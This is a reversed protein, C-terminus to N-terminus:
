RSATAMDQQKIVATPAPVHVAEDASRLAEQWGGWKIAALSSIGSRFQRFEDIEELFSLLPPPTGRCLGPQRADGYVRVFAWDHQRPSRRMAAIYYWVSKPHNKGEYYWGLWWAAHSHGALAWERCKSITKAIPFLASLLREPNLENLYADVREGTAYDACWITNNEATSNGLVVLTQRTVRLTCIEGVMPEREFM